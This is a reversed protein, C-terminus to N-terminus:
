AAGDKQTARGVADTAARAAERSGFLAVEMDPTDWAVEITAKDLDLPVSQPAPVDASMWSGQLTELEVRLQETEAKASEVRTLADRILADVRREAFFTAALWSCLTSVSALFAGFVVQMPVTLVAACTLAAAIASVLAVQALNLIRATM